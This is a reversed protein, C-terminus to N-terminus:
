GGGCSGSCGPRGPETGVSGTARWVERHREMRKRHSREMRMMLWVVGAAIAVGVVFILVTTVVGGLRRQHLLAVGTFGVGYLLRDACCGCM